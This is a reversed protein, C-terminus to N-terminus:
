LLIFRNRMVDFSFLVSSVLLSCSLVSSFLLASAQGVAHQSTYQKTCWAHVIEPVSVCSTRGKEGGTGGGGDTHRAGEM